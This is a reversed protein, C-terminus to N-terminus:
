LDAKPPHVFPNSKPNHPHLFSEQLGKNFLWRRLVVLAHERCWDENLNWRESWKCLSQRLHGQSLLSWHSFATRVKGPDLKHIEALVWFLGRWIWVERDSNTIAIWNEQSVRALVQQFPEGGGRGGQQVGLDKKFHKCVVFVFDWFTPWLDDIVHPAIEPIAKLFLARAVLRSDRPGVGREFQFSPSSMSSTSVLSKM